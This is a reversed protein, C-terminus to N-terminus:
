FFLYFCFLLGWSKNRWQRGNKKNIKRKMQIKIIKLGKQLQWCLSVTLNGLLTRLMEYWKVFICIYSLQSMLRHTYLLLSKFQFYWFSCTFYALLLFKPFYLFNLLVVNIVVKSRKFRNKEKRTISIYNQINILVQINLPM